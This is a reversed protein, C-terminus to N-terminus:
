CNIVFSIIEWAKDRKKKDKEKLERDHVIMAWPDETLLVARRTNLCDTVVDINRLIPSYGKAFIDVVFSVTNQNDIWLIRETSEEQEWHILNNVTLIQKM